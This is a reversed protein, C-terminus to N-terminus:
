NMTKKLERSYLICLSIIDTPLVCCLSQHLFCDIAKESSNLEYTVNHECYPPKKYTALESELQLIKKKTVTSELELKQLRFLIGMLDINGVVVRDFDYSYGSYLMCYKLNDHIKPETKLTIIVNGKQQDTGGLVIAGTLTGSQQQNGILTLNENM